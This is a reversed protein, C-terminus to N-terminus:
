QSWECLLFFRQSMQEDKDFESKTRILNLSQGNVLFNPLEEYSVM